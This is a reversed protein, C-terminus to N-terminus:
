NVTVYKDAMTTKAIESCAKAMNYYSRGYEAMPGDCSVEVKSMFMHKVITYLAKVYQDPERGFTKCFDFGDMNKYIVATEIGDSNFGIADDRFFWELLGPNKKEARRQLEKCAITLFEWERDNFTVETRIYNTYGM